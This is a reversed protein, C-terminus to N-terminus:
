AKGGDPVAEGNAAEELHKAAEEFASARIDGWAISPSKLTEEAVDRIAAAIEMITSNIDTTHRYLQLLKARLNEAREQYPDPTM